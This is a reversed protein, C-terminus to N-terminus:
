LFSCKWTYTSEDWVGERFGRVKRGLAKHVKPDETRLMQAAIKSDAFLLAKQVMMYM